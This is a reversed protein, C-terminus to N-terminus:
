FRLQLVNASENAKYVKSLKWTININVVRLLISPLPWNDIIKLAKGPQIDDNSYFVADQEVQFHEGSIDM